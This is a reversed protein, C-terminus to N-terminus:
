RDCVVGLENSANSKRAVLYFFDSWSSVVRCVAQRIPTVWNRWAPREARFPDQLTTWSVREVLMEPALLRVVEDPTYFVACERMFAGAELANFQNFRAFPNQGALMKIRSVLATANPTGLILCGDPATVRKIEALARAPQYLHELVSDFLVLEFAEDPHPIQDRDVDCVTSPMGRSRSLDVESQLSDLGTVQWQYRRQLYASLFGDGSGIELIRAGTGLPLEDLLGILARYRHLHVNVYPAKGAFTAQRAWSEISLRRDHPQM